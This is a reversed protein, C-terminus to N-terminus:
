GYSGVAFAEWVALIVIIPIYFIFVRFLYAYHKVLIRRRPVDLEERYRFVFSFAASATLATLIICFFMESFVESLDFIKIWVNKYVSNVDIFQLKMQLGLLYSYRFLDIVPVVLTPYLLISVLVAFLNNLAISISRKVLVNSVKGDVFRIVQNGFVNHSDLFDKRSAFFYTTDTKFFYRFFNEGSLLFVIGSFVVMYLLFIIVIKRSNNIYSLTAIIYRKIKLEM